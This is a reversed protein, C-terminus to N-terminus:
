RKCGCTLIASVQVAFAQMYSAPAPNREAPRPLWSCSKEEIVGKLRHACICLTGNIAWRFYVVVFVMTKRRLGQVARLAEPTSDEELRPLIDDM